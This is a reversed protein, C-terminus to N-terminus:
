QWVWQQNHWEISLYPVCWLSFQCNELVTYVSALATPLSDCKYKARAMSLHFDCTAVIHKIGFTNNDEIWLRWSPEFTIVDIPKQPLANNTKECLYFPNAVWWECVLAFFFSGDLIIRGDVSFLSSSHEMVRAYRVVTRNEVGFSTISRKVWEAFTCIRSFICM